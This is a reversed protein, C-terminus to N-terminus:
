CETIASAAGHIQTVTSEAEHPVSVTSVACQPATIVTGTFLAALFGSVSVTDQLLVLRARALTGSATVTDTLKKAILRRFSGTVTVTDTLTKNVQRRFSGTTTVTDTFSVLIVKIASRTGSVTVTDTLRKLVSRVMSGTATVTDVRTLLVKRVYSGTATVTDSFSVLIVKIASMSGSVTVTDTITKPIASKKLLGTATVTDTRTLITKRVMTGTTTVTDTFSVLAVKIAALSGSATVTDVLKKLTSRLMSGAASVTDTLKKGVQVNVKSTVNVTDSLSVPYNTGGGSSYSFTRRRIRPTLMCFPFMGDVLHEGETLRRRWAKGIVVPGNHPRVTTSMGGMRVESFNSTTTGSNGVQAQSNDKVGNVFLSAADFQIGGALTNDGSFGSVTVMEGSAVANTHPRYRLGNNARYGLIPKGAAEFGCMLGEGTTGIHFLTYQSTSPSEIAGTGSVTCGWQKIDHTNHVPLQISQTSGVTFHRALGYRTRRWTPSGTLTQFYQPYVLNVLRMNPGVIVCATLLSTLGLSWDIEYEIGPILEKRHPDFLELTM